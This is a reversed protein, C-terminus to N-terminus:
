KTEHQNHEAKLVRKAPKEKCLFILNTTLGKHVATTMSAAGVRTPVENM